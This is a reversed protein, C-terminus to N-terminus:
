KASGGAFGHRQVKRSASAVAPATVLAGGSAVQLRKSTSASRISNAYSFSAARAVRDGFASALLPVTYDLGLKMGFGKFDAAAAAIWRFFWDAREPHKAWTDAFNEECQVPNAVWWEGNRSEVLSGMHGTVTRLVEYLDDGGLYASAALTTIIISAPRDKLHDTFYIDRHRKLAQVTQQLTTRIQWEPVEDIQTRKAELAATLAERMQNFFWDSYGTPHSRLWESVDKDTILVGRQGPERNPIAPLLDLHMERWQITWCREWETVRAPGGKSSRAYEGVPVGADEKLAAQTISSKDIDRIAVADLDIEDNRHVNRVVTGLAFSGQPTIVNDGRTHDWHEAFTDGLAAYHGVALKYEAETIDLSHLGGGLLSSLSAVGRSSQLITM